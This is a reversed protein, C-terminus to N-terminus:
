TDELIYNPKYNAFDTLFLYEYTTALFNSTRLNGHYLDMQTHVIDLAMIM